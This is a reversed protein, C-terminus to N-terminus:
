LNQALLSRLHNASRLVANHVTNVSDINQNMFEVEVSLPATSGSEHLISVIRAFDILGDGVAPYLSENWAGAKDKAHLAVVKDVCNELDAYPEVNAYKIVNATDYNIGFNSRDVHDALRNLAAGTPYNAGHTELCLKLGFGSAQDALYQLTKVLKAEDEIIDKDGHTEGTSTVVYEASLRAALELNALLNKQGDATMINSHGCMGAISLQNELLLAQIDDIKSDSFEPLVHETYGRVAAIELVNINANRAGSIAEELSFGHYSNTNLYIETPM